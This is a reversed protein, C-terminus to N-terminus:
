PQPIKEERATSEVKDRRIRHRRTFIHQRLSTAKRRVAPIRLLLLLAVVSGFALPLGIDGQMHLLDGKKALAYHVIVLGGALYVLRHLRKWNKGLRKMWYPFSTIAMVTLIVLAALGLLVFPKEVIAPELLSWDLQYDIATFITFHIAAYFFAYLGLTRNLRIGKRWGFLTNAPTMALSLVLFILAFRGTRQEAAQIPNVTLNGNFYDVLMWILPVWAALHLLPYSIRLRIKM